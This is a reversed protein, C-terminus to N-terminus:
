VDRQLGDSRESRIRMREQFTEARFEVSPIEPMAGNLHIGLIRLFMENIEDGSLQACNEVIGIDPLCRRQRRNTLPQFFQAFRVEASSEALGLSSGNVVHHHEQLKAGCGLGCLHCLHDLLERLHSCVFCMPSCVLYFGERRRLSSGDTRILRESNEGRMPRLVCLRLWMECEPRDDRGARALLAAIPETQLGYAIGDSEHTGDLKRKKFQM